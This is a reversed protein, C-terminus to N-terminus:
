RARDDGKPESDRQRALEEVRTMLAEFGESSGLLQTAEELESMPILTGLVPSAVLAAQGLLFALPKNLELFLVAPGELRKSVIRAALRDVLERRRAEEDLPAKRVAQTDDTKV